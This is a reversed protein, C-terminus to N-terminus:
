SRSWNYNITFYWEPDFTYYPKFLNECINM